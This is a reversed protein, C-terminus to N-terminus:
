GVNLTVVVSAGTGSIASINARVFPWNAELAAGDTDSDTGSLSITAQTFWNTGDNSVEILVTATVAGTGTVTAQYTRHNGSVQQTPLPGTTTAADALSILSGVQIASEFDALAISLNLATNLDDFFVRTLAPDTPHPAWASVKTLDYATDGVYFINPLNVPM